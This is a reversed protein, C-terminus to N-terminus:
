LLFPITAADGVLRRLPHVSIYDGFVARTNKDILETPARSATFVREAARRIHRAFSNFSDHDNRRAEGPSGV